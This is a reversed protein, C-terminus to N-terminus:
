EEDIGYISFVWIWNGYDQSANLGNDNVRRITLTLDVQNPNDIFFVSGYEGTLNITRGSNASSNLDINGIPTQNTQNGGSGANYDFCSNIFNLGSLYMVVFRDSAVSTAVTNFNSVGTLCIKFKKYKDYLSGLCARMNVNQFYVYSGNTNITANASRLVLIASELNM